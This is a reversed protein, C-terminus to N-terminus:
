KSSDLHKNAAKLINTYVQHLNKKNSIIVSSLVMLNHSLSHIYSSIDENIPSSIDTESDIDTPKIFKIDSTDFDIILNQDVDRAANEVSFLIADIDLLQAILKIDNSELLMRIYGDLICLNYKIQFPTNDPLLELPARFLLYKVQKIFFTIDDDKTRKMVLKMLMSSLIVFKDISISVVDNSYARKYTSGGRTPLTLSVGEPSKNIGGKIM